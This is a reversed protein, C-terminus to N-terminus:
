HSGAASASSGAAGPTGGSGPGDAPGAGGMGGDSPFSSPPIVCGADIARALQDHVAKSDATDADAISADGLPHTEYLPLPPCVSTAGTEQCSAAFCGGMAFALLLSSKLSFPRTM